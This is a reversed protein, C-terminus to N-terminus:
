NILKCGGCWERCRYTISPSRDSTSRHLLMSINIHNFHQELYQLREDIKKSLINLSLITSKRTISNFRYIFVFFGIIFCLILLFRYSRLCRMARMYTLKHEM